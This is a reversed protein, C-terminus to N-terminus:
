LKSLGYAITEKRGSHEPGSLMYYMENTFDDVSLLKYFASSCTSTTVNERIPSSCLKQVTIISHVHHFTKVVSVADEVTNTASIPINAASANGRVKGAASREARRVQKSEMKMEKQVETTPPVLSALPLHKSPCFFKIPHSCLLFTLWCDPIYFKDGFREWMELKKKRYIFLQHSKQEDDWMNGKWEKRHTLTNYGQMQSYVKLLQRKMAKFMATMNKGSGLDEPQVYYRNHYKRIVRFAEQALNILTSGFYLKLKTEKSASVHKPAERVVWENLAAEKGGKGNEYKQDVWLLYEEPLVGDHWKSFFVDRYGEKLHLNQVLEQYTATMVLAHDAAKMEGLVYNAEYAMSAYFQLIQGFTDNFTQKKGNRICDMVAEIFSQLEDVVPVDSDIPGIKEL